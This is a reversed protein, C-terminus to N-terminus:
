LQVDSCRSHQSAVHTSLYLIDEEWAALEVKAPGVCAIPDTVAAVAVAPSYAGHPPVSDKSFQVPNFALHDQSFSFVRAHHYSLIAYCVAGCRRSM